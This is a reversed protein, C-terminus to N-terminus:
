FLYVIRTFRFFSYMCCKGVHKLNQPYSYMATVACGNRQMMYDDMTQTQGKFDVLMGCGGNPPMDGSTGGMASFFLSWRLSECWRGKIKWSHIM